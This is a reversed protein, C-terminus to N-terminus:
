SSAAAEGLAVGFLPLISGLLMLATRRTIRGKLGSIAVLASDLAFLAAATRVFTKEHREDGLVSWGLAALALNRAAAFRQLYLLESSQDVVGYLASLQRPMLLGSAGVAAGGGILIEVRRRQDM